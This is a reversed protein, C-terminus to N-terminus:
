VGERESERMCWCVCVCVCVSSSFKRVLMLFILRARIEALTTLLEALLELRLVRDLRLEDLGELPLERNPRGEEEEEEEEEEEALLLLLLLVLAPPLVLELLRTVAELGDDDDEEEEEVERRTIALLLVDLRAEITLLPLDRPAELSIQVSHEGMGGSSQM